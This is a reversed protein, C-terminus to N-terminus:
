GYRAGLGARVRGRAQAPLSEAEPLNAILAEAAARGDASVDFVVAVPM